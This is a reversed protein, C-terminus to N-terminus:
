SSHSNSGSRNLNAQQQARKSQQRQQRDDAASTHDQHVRRHHRRSRRCQTSCCEDINPEGIGSKEYLKRKASIRTQQCISRSCRKRDCNVKSDKCRCKICKQEGHSALIPHWEQGNEYVKNLVKCGGQSIIDEAPYTVRIGQDQLINPNLVKDGRSPKSEPCVKCCAKKDPRYAVKDSCRLMPCVIRPCRVELTLVDCTCTTCTDFGNPPLFPHWVTGALHFQDGLRCGRATQEATSATEVVVNKAVCMSCCEGERRILEENPKCQMAPCKIPECTPQGSQCACMQCVDNANRWQESEDYFRGSHFCKADPGILNNDGHDGPVASNPVNNDTHLPLCHSPVKTSKLKGRLLLESNEKSHIELYCVNNELKVLDLSPMGLVYGEVYSGSFEELLKRTVPAGIAEIPKEELYIQLDQPNYQFGNVTIEYHLSCENDIALWAMGMAHAPASTSNEVRKLLIPEASDRADAVPRPVFHGRILSPEKEIAINVGLDGAYLSEIAKPSLKDIIGIAQNFNFTPTLNDLMTRRKGLDEMLNIEPRDKISIHDTEINYSLSGDTNLFVWSLGSSKTRSEANHPTLLTQFLECTARTVIHGQIRLHPNKKSEITLLLKGRSMLRLMPISIPSSIELINIEASPKRVKQVEDLVIEKRDPSEVRVNIPSDLYEDSGFVGNFVLTLHVSAAAGSSTSIIATGGAGNLLAPKPGPAPELLSSFLETQLATYKAINGGLALDIQDKKGWLLVVHLREDRLLRKYDRPVRRWVGCIKGTANQYVSQTDSLPTQLQHEELITGGDNVFQITRPRNTKSSIYFSYYLNKKHFLFRGTAVINQPNYTSTAYMAKMEEGKLFLSTRGTLLAAFHKMNREEEEINVPAPVDLSVDTDNKDDPCTKCCKGPLQVPDNCTAIPCDHKINKCQVRVVIRRKKPVAVCECKICYMVGFPPGLDAFWTSGIERVTKGFQCESVVPRNNRRTGESEDVLLPTHRRGSVSSPATCILIAFIIFKSLLNFLTTSSAARTAAASLSLTRRASKGTVATAAAPSTFLAACSTRVSSTSAKTTKRSKLMDAPTDIASSCEASTASTANCTYYNTSTSSNTTKTSSIIAM